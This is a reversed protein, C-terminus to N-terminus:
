KLGLQYPPWESGSRHPLEGNLAEVTEQLTPEIDELPSSYASINMQIKIAVMNDLPTLSTVKQSSPSILAAKGNVSTWRRWNQPIGKIVNDKIYPEQAIILDIKHRAITEQLKNMAPICKYLNIQLIRIAPSTQSTSCNSFIKAYDLPNKRSFSPYGTSHIPTSLLAPHFTTPSSAM